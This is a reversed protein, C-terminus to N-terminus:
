HELDLEYGQYALIVELDGFLIPKIQPIDLYYHVLVLKRVGSELAVRVADQVTSHGHVRAKEDYGSAEHVLASCGRASDVLLPNYTTDGSYAFCVGGSSVKLSLAPVTHLARIFQVELEDLHVVDGSSVGKLDVTGEYDVGTIRMLTCLEGVVEIPAYVRLGRVEEYHKAFMVISPLGLVHDGHLHTIIIGALDKVRLGHEYLARLVGEGADILLVRRSPGQIVALSTHGLRPKSIWGGVGLFLLKM